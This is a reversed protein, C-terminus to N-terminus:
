AAARRVFARGGFKAVFEAHRARLWEAMARQEGVDDSTLGHWGDSVSFTGHAEALDSLAAEAAETAERMERRLDADWDRRDDAASPPQFRDM